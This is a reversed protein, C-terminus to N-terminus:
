PLVALAFFSTNSLITVSTDRCYPLLEYYDGTVLPVPMSAFNTIKQTDSVTTASIPGYDYAFSGGKNVQASGIDFAPSDVNTIYITGSFIGYKGNVSSPITIRSPNTVNDHFGDTDFVETNWPVVYTGTSINVATLDASLNLLCGSFAPFVDVGGATMDILMTYQIGVVPSGM